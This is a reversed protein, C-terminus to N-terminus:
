GCSTTSCTRSTSSRGEQEIWEVERRLISLVVDRLPVVRRRFMILDTRRIALLDQQLSGDPPPGDSFLVEEVDELRDEAAEIAVFYGDVVADLLAYLISGPSM